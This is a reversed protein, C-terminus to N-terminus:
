RRNLFSARMRSMQCRKLLNLMHKKVKMFLCCEENSRQCTGELFRKCTSHESRRHLRLSQFDDFTKDCVGCKHKFTSSARSHGDHNTEMPEDHRYWCNVGHICQNRLFYKCNRNSPHRQKRHNMLNWYSLFEEKCTYCHSIKSKQNQIEPSPLHGTLKLHNMLESSSSAQFSCNNCNWEKKSVHTHKHEKLDDQNAFKFECKDCQYCLKHQDMHASLLGQSELQMKCDKWSCIFM